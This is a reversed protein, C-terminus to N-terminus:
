KKKRATHRPNNNAPAGKCTKYNHGKEGCKSCTVRFTKKLENGEILVEALDRKRAHVKPRGIPQKIVPPDTKLYKTTTWYEESPDNTAM